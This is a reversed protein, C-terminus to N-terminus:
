QLDIFCKLLPCYFIQSLIGNISLSQGQSSLLISVQILIRNYQAKLQSCICLARLEGDLEM